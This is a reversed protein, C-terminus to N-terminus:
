SRARYYANRRAQVAGALTQTFRAVAIKRNLKGVIPLKLCLRDYNLRGGPTQIYKRVVFVLIWVGAIVFLWYHLIINSLTVLSLTVLPLTAHVQDYVKAFVPVIFLLMFTVVAVSAFFVLAPYVFAGKVKERLESEKDFQEAAVELTAELVGGTEGAQVLSVYKENFIKPQKRMADALTSGSLVEIRVERLADTLTPNEAQEAVAHLCEIISIGARVLTALQRSMIVMDPLKVKKRRFMGASSAADGREAKERIDTVFLDKYRLTTRAEISDKATVSGVTKNGERDRATYVFTGM